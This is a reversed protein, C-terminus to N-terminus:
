VEAGYGFFGLIPLALAASLSLPTDFGDTHCIALMPFDLGISSLRSLKLAFQASLL